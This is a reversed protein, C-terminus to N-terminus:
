ARLPLLMVKWKKNYIKTRHYIFEEDRKEEKKEEKKM